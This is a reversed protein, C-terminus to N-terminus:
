RGLATVQAQDAVKTLLEVKSQYAAMLFGVADRDKPNQAAVQRTQGIASDLLAVEREYEARLSPRLSEEGGLKITRELSAIATRYESEGPLAQEKPPAPVAAPRAEGSRAEHRRTNHKVKVPGNVSTKAATTPAVPPTEVSGPTPTTASLPGSPRDVQAVQKSDPAGGTTQETRQVSFYIVGAAVVALVGAFAAAGQPTFAFLGSLSTFFGGFRPGRPRAGDAEPSSELQAVAAGIRSRLVASPVNVSEDPAFAAAFFSSEQEALALAGACADCASLHAAADAAREASLEGDIFAQLIAEDLCRKTM